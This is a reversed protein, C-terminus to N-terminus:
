RMEEYAKITGIDYCAGNMIYAYVAKRTHLWQPLRGPQDPNNGEAIYQAILPLTDRKYFYSGYIAINTAPQEPKEILSLVKGDEDLEAVAFAKLQEIDDIIGATLTDANKERFFEYQEKLDYTFYNDGCIVAVDEDIGMERITFYMDGIAGRKTGDETTGDDLVTIPARSPATQAWEKFHTFFKHNSVVYVADVAEIRNLQDIIYNIVPKGKLPLLAKPQNLTLPYMRTAYGAVLIIAKMNGEQTDNLAIIGRNAKKQWFDCLQKL